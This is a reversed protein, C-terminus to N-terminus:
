CARKKKVMRRGKLSPIVGFPGYALLLAYREVRRSPLRTFLDVFRSRARGLSKAIEVELLFEQSSRGTMTETDTPMLGLMVEM